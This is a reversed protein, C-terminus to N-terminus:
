RFYRMRLDKCQVCVWTTQPPDMCYSHVCRNECSHCHILLEEPERCCCQYCVPRPPPMYQLSTRTSAEGHPIIYVDTAFSNSPITQSYIKQDSSVAEEMKQISYFSAKCLPCTSVKKMSAKHDAWNQICSFCFRHGCPLVGRTSSFDTWCIVCSLHIPTPSAPADERENSEDDVKTSKDLSNKSLSASVGNNCVPDQVDSTGLDETQESDELILNRRKAYDPLRTQYLRRSVKSPEGIDVDNDHIETHQFDDEADSSSKVVNDTNKHMLRRSGRSSECRTIDRKKKNARRSPSPCPLDESEIRSLGFSPSEDLDYENTLSVDPRSCRKTGKRSLRSRDKNRREDSLLNEKLLSSQTWDDDDDSEVYENTVSVDQRLCRMTGKRRSRSPDKNRREDPHLSEKLLSSQIWDDDAEVYENTVSVDQRLCRMTGKRRSRSPDKNRREDPHLNEKLLSSQTWDDDGGDDSEVDIVRNKSFSRSTSAEGFVSRVEKSAVPIELLLPGIVAGCHKMYPRESVRRGHKVCDEVWRHNVVIIKLKRALEYKKGEFKRCVLHTTSQNMAGVYIAGSRAILKILNFRESGHYGSVTAIVSDM